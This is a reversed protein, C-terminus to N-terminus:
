GITKLRFRSFPKEIAEDPIDFFRSTMVERRAYDLHKAPNQIRVSEPDPNGLPDWAVYLRYRRRSLAMESNASERARHQM